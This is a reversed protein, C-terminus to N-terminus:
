KPKRRGRRKIQKGFKPTDLETKIHNINKNIKNIEKDPYKEYKEIAVLFWQIVKTSSYLVEFLIKCLLYAKKDKLKTLNPEINEIYDKKFEILLNELEESPNKM